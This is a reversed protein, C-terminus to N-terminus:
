IWFISWAESAKQIAHGLNPGWSCWSFWGHIHSGEGVGFMPPANERRQEWQGVRSGRHETCHGNFNNKLPMDLNSQIAEEWPGHLASLPCKFSLSPFKGPGFTCLHCQNQWPTTLILMRLQRPSFSDTKGPGMKIWKGFFLCLLFKHFKWRQTLASDSLAVLSCIGGRPGWIDCPKECVISLLAIAGAAVM